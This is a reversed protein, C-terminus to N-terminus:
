VLPWYAARNLVGPGRRKEPSEELACTGTMKACKCLDYVTRAARSSLKGGPGGAPDFTPPGGGRPQAQATGSGGRVSPRRCRLSTVGRARPPPFTKPQTAADRGKGAGDM